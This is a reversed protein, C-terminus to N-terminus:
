SIPPSFAVGKGGAMWGSAGRCVSSAPPLELVEQAGQRVQSQGGNASGSCPPGAARHARHAM